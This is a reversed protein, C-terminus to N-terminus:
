LSFGQCYIKPNSWKGNEQCQRYNAEGRIEYNKLKKGNGLCGYEVTEFVAFEISDDKLPTAALFGHDIPPLSLPNDKM